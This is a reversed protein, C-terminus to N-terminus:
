TITVLCNPHLMMFEKATKALFDGGNFNGFQPHGGSIVIHTMKSQKYPGYYHATKNISRGSDALNSLNVTGGEEGFISSRILAATNFGVISNRSTIISATTNNAVLNRIGTPISSSETINKILLAQLKVTLEAIDEEVATNFKGVWDDIISDWSKNKAM